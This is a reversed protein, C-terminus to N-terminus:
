KSFGDKTLDLDLQFFSIGKGIEPTSTMLGNVWGKKKLYAHLSGTGEHGILHALYGAPKERWLPEQHPIPM